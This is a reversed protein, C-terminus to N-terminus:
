LEGRRPESTQTIQFHTTIGSNYNLSKDTDSYGAATVILDGQWPLANGSSDNSVFARTSNGFELDQESFKREPRDMSLLTWTTPLVKNSGSALWGRSKELVPALTPLCCVIMAVNAEIKSWLIFLTFDAIFDPIDQNDYSTLLYYFRAIGAGITFFGVGFVATVGIKKRVPMSLNWIVPIPICLIVFDTVLDLTSYATLLGILSVCETLQVGVPAWNLDWRLGCQFVTIFFFAISWAGIFGIFLWIFIVAKRSRSFVRKWLFLLSLKIFGLVPKETIQFAYRYRQALHILPSNTTWNDVVIPPGAIAGQITGGLFIGNLALVFILSVLALWDDMGLDLRTLRRAYFRSVTVLIALFSLFSSAVILGVRDNVQRLSQSFGTNGESIPQM